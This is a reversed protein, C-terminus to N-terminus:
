VRLIRPLPNLQLLLLYGESSFKEVKLQESQCEWLKHVGEMLKNIIDEFTLM